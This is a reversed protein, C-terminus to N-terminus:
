YYDFISHDASRQASGVIVTRMQWDHKGAPTEFTPAVRMYYDAPDVPDLAEMRAAIEPPAHRYGRNKMYIMTGDDAELMYRADFAVAHDPRYLAWDGGSHPVVRGKLRPGDITGGAAAVFGRLGGQPLPGFKQRTGLEMRIRFVFELRPTIPAM